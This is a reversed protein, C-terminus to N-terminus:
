LLCSECSRVADSRFKKTMPSLVHALVLIEVTARDLIAVGEPGFLRLEDVPLFRGLEDAVVAIRREDFPELAPEGVEAVVGDIAM